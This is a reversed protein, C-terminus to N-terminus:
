HVCPAPFEEDQWLQCFDTLDNHSHLTPLQQWETEWAPLPQQSSHFSKWQGKVTKDRYSSNCPSGVARTLRVHISPSPFFECGYSWLFSLQFYKERNKHKVPVTSKSNRVIFLITMIIIDYIPDEEIWFSMPVNLNKFTNKYKLIKLSVALVRIFFVQSCM